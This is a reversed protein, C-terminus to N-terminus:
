RHSRSCLRSRMRQSEKLTLRQRKLREVNGIFSEAEAICLRPLLLREQCVWGRKALVSNDLHSRSIGWELRITHKRTDDPDIPLHVSFSSIIHSSRCSFLGKSPAHTNWSALTCAANSYIRDMQRIERAKDVPDDQVICLTDLWLYQLGLHRAFRAADRIEQKLAVYPLGKSM